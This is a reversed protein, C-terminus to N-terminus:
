FKVVVSPTFTPGTDDAIFDDAVQGPLPANLIIREAWKTIMGGEAEFPRSLEARLVQKAGEGEHYHLLLWVKSEPPAIRRKQIVDQGFLDTQLVQSIELFLDGKSRKTKPQDGILMGTQADGSCVILVTENIPDRVLAINNSDRIEWGRQYQQERVHRTAYRYLDYGGATRPDYFLATMKEAVGRQLAVILTQEEIGLGELRKRREVPTSYVQCPSPAGGDHPLGILSAM